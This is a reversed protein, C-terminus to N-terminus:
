RAAAELADALAARTAADTVLSPTLTVSAGDEGSPAVVYGAELLRAALAVGGDMRGTDFAWLLGRGRAELGTRAAVDAAFASWAASAETLQAQDLRHLTAWVAISTLPHGLFTSTHIAEPTATAVPGSWAAEAVETRALVVGVPLGGGVAKGLAVVDPACAAGLLPEGARGAGVLVSDVVLLAGVRTCEARLEDLFGPSPVRVGARGQIPEVVVCAVREDLEPVEDWPHFSVVDRAYQAAFPERFAARHTVALALGFTGHYGGEFAVIRDRGTALLATKLATEVAESGSQLVLARLGDGGFRQETSGPQVAWHDSAWGTLAHTARDRLESTYLDGLGPALESLPPWGRLEELVANHGYLHAGFGMALDTLRRRGRRGDPHIAGDDTVVRDGVASHWAHSGPLALGPFERAAPPSV